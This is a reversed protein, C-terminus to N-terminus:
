AASGRHLLKEILPRRMWGLILAISLMMTAAIGAIMAIKKNPSAPKEPLSPNELVQVLPYSAYLDAKSTQSRAIASAFVAEAVAFDRQLDELQAAIPGLTQLRAEESTIFTRLSQLQAALGARTTERKLLTSLLEARAGDPALDLAELDVDTRGTIAKAQAQAAAEISAVESRATELRPHGAGLRGAREAYDARAAALQQMLVLYSGDAYLKLTDAADRATTGLSTELASVEQTVLSLEMEFTRMQSKRQDHAALLARFQDPTNLGTASQLASIADRTQAVSARYEEISEGGSQARVALEDRRLADVEAFFTALLADGRKQAEEPSAGNLEIHIFSTQDVLKVKPKGLDRQHIGLSQATSRLIRDASILRKYTETPSITNSSFASSSNSSAQGIESLNVSASAGAGPLILSMYTTYSPATTTIYTYIPAWIGGVGLLLFATYRPLGGLDTTRGGLFIRAIAAGLRSGGSSPAPASGDVRSPTVGGLAPLRVSKLFM